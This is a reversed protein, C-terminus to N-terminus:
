GFAGKDDEVSQGKTMRLRFRLTESQPDMRVPNGSVRSHCFHPPFSVNKTMGLKVPSGTPDPNGNER